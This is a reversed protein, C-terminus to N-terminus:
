RLILFIVLIFLLFIGGVAGGILLFRNLYIKRIHNRANRLDESLLLRFDMDSDDDESLQQIAKYVIFNTELEERCATCKEIHELFSELENLSLNRDIYRSVMGEAQQCTIEM